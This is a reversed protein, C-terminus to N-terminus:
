ELTRRVQCPQGMVALGGLPRQKDGARAQRQVQQQLRPVPAQFAVLRPVAAQDVRHRRHDAAETGIARELVDVVGVRPGEAARRICQDATGEELQDGLLVPPRHGGVDLCQVGRGRRADHFVPDHSRAALHAPLAPGVRQQAIVGSPRAVLREPDVDGVQLHGLGVALRNELAVAVQHAREALDHVLPPRLAVRQGPATVVRADQAARDLLHAAIGRAPVRPDM